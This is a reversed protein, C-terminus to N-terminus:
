NYFGLKPSSAKASKWTDVFVERTNHSIQTSLKSKSFSSQPINYKTLLNSINTYWPLGLMIQEHFAASLLENETSELRSSCTKLSWLFPPPAWKQGLLRFEISKFPCVFTSDNLTTKHSTSSLISPTPKAIQKPSTDWQKQTPVIMNKFHTPLQTLQWHM